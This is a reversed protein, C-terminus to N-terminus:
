RTGGVEILFVRCKVNRERQLLVFLACGSLLLCHIHHAWHCIRCSYFEFDLESNNYFRLKKIPVCQRGGRRKRPSYNQSYWRFCRVFKSM